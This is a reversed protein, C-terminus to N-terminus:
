FIAVNHMLIAERQRRINFTLRTSVIMPTHLVAKKRRPEEIEPSLVEGLFQNSLFFSVAVPHIFLEM